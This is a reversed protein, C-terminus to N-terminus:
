WSSKHNADSDIGSVHLATHRRGRGFHRHDSRGDGDDRSLEMEKLEDYSMFHMCNVPCAQKSLHDLFM